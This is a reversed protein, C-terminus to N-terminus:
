ANKRRRWWGLLGGSALILGPLGAGAIPSPVAAAENGVGPSFVLQYLSADSPNAFSITPDIFGSQSDASGFVTNANVFLNMGISYITSVMLSTPIDASFSTQNALGNGACTNFNSPAIGCASAIVQTGPLAFFVQASNVGSLAQTVGGSVSVVMPVQLGPSVVVGGQPLLEFYYQLTVEVNAGGQTASVSINENPSPLVGATVTATAFATGQTYGTLVGTQNSPSGLGNLVTNISFAPLSDALAQSSASLVLGALASVALLMPKM